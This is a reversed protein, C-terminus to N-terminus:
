RAYCLLSYNCFKSACTRTKSTLHIEDNTPHKVCQSKVIARGKFVPTGVIKVGAVNPNPLFGLGGAFMRDVVFSGTLAKRESVEPRSVGLIIKVVPTGDFSSNCVTEPGAASKVSVDARWIDPKSADRGSFLSEDVAM